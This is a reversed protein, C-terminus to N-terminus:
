DIVYAVIFKGNSKIYIENISNYHEYNYNPMFNYTYFKNNNIKKIYYTHLGAGTFISNVAGGNNWNSMIVHCSGKKDLGSKFGNYNM